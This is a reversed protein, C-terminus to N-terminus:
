PTPAYKHKNEFKKKKKLFFDVASKVKNIAYDDTAEEKIKMYLNDLWVESELKNILNDESFYIKEILLKYNELQDRLTSPITISFKMCGDCLALLEAEAGIIDLNKKIIEIFEVDVPKDHYIESIVDTRGNKSLILKAEEIKEKIIRENLKSNRWLDYIYNQIQGIDYFIIQYIPLRGFFFKLKNAFIKKAPDVIKAVRLGKLKDKILRSPIKILESFIVKFPGLNTGNIQLEPLYLYRTPKLLNRDVEKYNSISGPRFKELILFILDENAEIDCDQSALICLTSSVFTEVLVSNGKDFIENLIDKTNDVIPDKKSYSSRVLLDFSLYPINKFIDGQQIPFNKDYDLDYITM